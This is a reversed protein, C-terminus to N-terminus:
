SSIYAKFKKKKIKIKIPAGVVTAAKGRKVAVWSKTEVVEITGVDSSQLGVDRSTLAGLLDGARLKDRRGGTVLVTEWTASWEVLSSAAENNGKDTSRPPLDKWDVIKIGQYLSSNIEAFRSLEDSGSGRGRQRTLHALQKNEGGVGQLLEEEWGGKIKPPPGKSDDRGQRDTDQVLVIADGCAGARATRGVRHTHTASDQAPSMQVIVAVGKIDLGRSAVNTAVLIRCSGGRFFSLVKDRDAQTSFDTRQIRTCM